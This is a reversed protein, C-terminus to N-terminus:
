KRNLSFNVVNLSKLSKGFHITAEFIEKLIPKLMDKDGMSVSGTTILVDVLKLGKEIRTVMTQVSYSVNRLFNDKSFSGFFRSNFFIAPINFRKNIM